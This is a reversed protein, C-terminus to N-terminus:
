SCDGVAKMFEGLLVTAYSGPPLAFRFRLGTAEQSVELGEPRVAYARRAGSTLKAYESFASAMLGAAELVRRERGAPEDLPSRMKPGYLPGTPVVEWREYRPQDVEADDCVFLGGSAVVQLVDGRQVRSLLGDRLREALAANFLASQVASLAMRLLFKRRATPLEHPRREGRLLALGLAINEADAGFRQMGYYNPFGAAEIRRVIAEAREMAEPVVERVLISFRNGRLHGTRLKHRHRVAELVRVQESNIAEVREACAAPVSVWQRTVGRRDKLGAVGVDAASIGLAKSVHRTLQEAAVDRKEVRLYLHDGEGCPPYAPIEEVEFDEVETKMRGGIGPLDATFPALDLAAAVLDM